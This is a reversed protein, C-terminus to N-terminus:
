NSDPPAPNSTAPVLAIAKRNLEVLQDALESLRAIEAELALDGAEYEAQIQRFRDHLQRSAERLYALQRAIEERYEDQAM